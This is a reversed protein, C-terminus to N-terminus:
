TRVEVPLSFTVSEEHLPREEVVVPGLGELAAIVERVKSEPASAGATIGITTADALWELRVDDCSDVLHATSGTRAAVEALRKSNSSNPSGIVLVVDTDPAIAAIAEQRNQTAYCIDEGHPGALNPFRERLRDVIGSVEDTALTTQTLYAVRNPDAIELQDVEDVSNIVQIHEPVEGVTGEVEEHDDHGILVIDYGRGTFRRAETHVKAVLPCTADIIRLQRHEADRRVQPSVGHAAFVLVSGPPVEEVEQVFVAGRGELERVVHSNHVIQRRVYVPPEFRDIARNVIEIAREVGACFSRPGALVVHRPMAARAWRELVPMIETIRRRARWAIAPTRWSRLEYDPADVVVRVVAVPRSPSAALLEALLFASEMDVARAGNAALSARAEGTVIRETSVIPACQVPLQARALEGTILASSPLHISPRGDGFRLEDAVVIDGPQLGRDLGGCLGVVAIPQDLEMEAALDRGARTARAMGMGTHRITAATTGARAASAEFRLATLVCLPSDAMMGPM